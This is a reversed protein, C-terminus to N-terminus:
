ATREASEIRWGEGTRILVMRVGSAAQGAGARLAPGDPHALSVVEYPAWSDALDLQVRDGDPRASTLQEVDPVFGRLAEGAGALSSVFREDAARLASSDAYVGDLLDAAATRFAEARRLYLEHVLTRWEELTGPM